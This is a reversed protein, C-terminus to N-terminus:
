GSQRQPRVKIAAACTRFRHQYNRNSGSGAHCANLVAMRYPLWPFTSQIGNVSISHGGLETGLSGFVPDTYRSIATGHTSVILMEAKGMDELLSELEGPAFIALHSGAILSSAILAEHRALLLDDANDRLASIHPAQLPEDTSRPYLAPVVRVEFKGAAMGERLGDHEAALMTMPVTNLSDQLHLIGPCGAALLEEFMPRLGSLLRDRLSRLAAVFINRDAEGAEYRMRTSVFTRLEDFDFPVRRYTTGFLVWLAPGGAFTLATICYGQALRNGLLEARCAATAMAFPPPAGATTLQSALEIFRDWPQRDPAPEWPDDYKERYGYLFPAGQKAIERLLDLVSQATPTYPNDLAVAAGWDLVAMWDAILGGYITSIPSLVAEVAGQEPLAQLLGEFRPVYRERVGRRYHLRNLPALLEDLCAVARSLASLIAPQDAAEAM